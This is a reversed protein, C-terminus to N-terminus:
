EAWVKGWPKRLRVGKPLALYKTSGRMALPAEETHKVVEGHVTMVAWFGGGTRKFVEFVEEGYEPTTVKVQGATGDNALWIVRVQNAEALTMIEAWKARRWAATVQKHCWVCLTRLNDMGCDRGGESVPTIHDVEWLYSQLNRKSLRFRKCLRRFEEPDRHSMRYIARYAAGTDMNCLACVGRDRDWCLQRRGSASNRILAQTRCEEGCYTTRKPKTQFELGCWGCHKIKM